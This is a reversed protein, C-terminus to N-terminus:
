KDETDKPNMRVRVEQSLIEIPTPLEGEIDLDLLMEDPINEEEISENPLTSSNGILFKTITILQSTNLEYVTGNELTMTGKTIAEQLLDYSLQSLNM